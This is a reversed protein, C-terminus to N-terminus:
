LFETGYLISAKLQIAHSQVQQKTIRHYTKFHNKGMCLPM